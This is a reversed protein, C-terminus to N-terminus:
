KIIEFDQVAQQDKVNYPGFYFNQIEETNTIETGWEGVKKEVYLEKYKPDSPNLIHNSNDDEVKEKLYYTGAEIRLAEGAIITLTSGDAKKVPEFKDTKTNKIYI